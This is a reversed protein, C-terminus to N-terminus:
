FTRKLEVRLYGSFDVMRISVSGPVWGTFPNSFFLEDNNGFYSFREENQKDLIRVTVYGSNYDIIKVVLKSTNATFRAPNSINVSINKANIFFIYSNVESLLVPQNVTGKRNEPEIINERCSYIQILLGILLLPLIVITNTKM